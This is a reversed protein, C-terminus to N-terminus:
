SVTRSSASKNADKQQAEKLLDILTSVLVKTHYVGLHQFLHEATQKTQFTTQYKFMRLKKHTRKATRHGYLEGVEFVNEYNRGIGIHELVEPHASFLFKIIGIARYIHRKNKVGLGCRNADRILRKYEYVEQPFSYYESQKALWELFRVAFQQPSNDRVCVKNIKACFDQLDAIGLGHSRNTFFNTIGGMEVKKGIPNVYGLYYERKAIKCMNVFFGESYEGRLITSLHLRTENVLRYAELDYVEEQM